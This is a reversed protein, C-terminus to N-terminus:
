AEDEGDPNTNRGLKKNLRAKAKIVSAPTINLLGAIEKTSLKMHIYSYLRVEYNTLGPHKEDLERFFNPHVQEFHLKFKDWDADLYLNQQIKTKLKELSDNTITGEKIADIETKLFSSQGRLLTTSSPLIESPNYLPLFVPSPVFTSIDTETNISSNIRMMTRVAMRFESIRVRILYRRVLGSGCRMHKHYGHNENYHAVSKESRFFVCVALENEKKLASM